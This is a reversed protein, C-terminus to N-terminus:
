ILSSTVGQQEIRASLEIRARAWKVSAHKQAKILQVEVQQRKQPDTIEDRVDRQMVRTGRQARLLGVM